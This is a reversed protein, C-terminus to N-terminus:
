RLGHRPYHKHLFWRLLPRAAVDTVLVKAGLRRPSEAAVQYAPNGCIMQNANTTFVKEELVLRPPPAPNTPNIAHQEASRNQRRQVFRM